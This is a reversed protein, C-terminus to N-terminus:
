DGAALPPRGVLNGGPPPHEGGAVRAGLRPVQPGAERRLVAQRRHDEVGAATPHGERLTVDVPEILVDVRPNPGLAEHGVEPQKRVIRMVSRTRDRALTDRPLDDVERHKPIRSRVLPVRVPDVENPGVSGQPLGDREDDPGAAALSPGPADLRRALIVVLPELEGPT